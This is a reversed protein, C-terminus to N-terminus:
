RLGARHLLDDFAAVFRPPSHTERVWRRGERGLRARLAADGLLRDLGEAFRPLADLGSGEFRGVHIGFRSVVGEPDVSALLPTECALAELLSVALGEHLSTNVLVWAAALLRAKEEDGVHGLLRVNPPLARPTWAGRGRVCAQGLFLFEVEPFRRALEAFLWPRKYPDLRALFVVTPREGKRIEGPELDIINPLFAVDSARVGYTEPVKEALSPAPTAFLVSRRLWRSSRVVGGLSTCDIPELGRPLAEEEGPVRITSVKAMDDPTRPDRVWVVVPTFPLLWLLARYSPRYDIALLLDVGGSLIRRGYDLGDRRRAILRTGHAVLEPPSTTDRKRSLFLVDVGLEPRERFCRAVQRAAWGFGGVRGQSVDFFENAVVGLKLKRRPNRPEEAM